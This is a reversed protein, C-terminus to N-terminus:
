SENEGRSVEAATTLENFIAELTRVDRRLERLPWNEKRALEFIALRLINRDIFAMRHLEWNDAADRIKEDLTKQNGLVGKVLLLSFSLIEEDRTERELQSM